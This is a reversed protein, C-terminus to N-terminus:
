KKRIQVIVKDGPEFEEVAHQIKKIGGPLMIVESTHSEGREAMWKAGAKFADLVDQMEWDWGPHGVADFVNSIHKEAAEELGEPLPPKEAELTDLFSLIIAYAKAKVNDFDREKRLIYNGEQLRGITANYRREIEKRITEKDILAM